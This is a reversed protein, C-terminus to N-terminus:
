WAILLAVGALALVYLAVKHDDPVIVSIAGPLAVALQIFFLWVRLKGSKAFESRLYGVLNGATLSM